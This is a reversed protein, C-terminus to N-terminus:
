LVLPLVIGALVVLLVVFYLIKWVVSKGKVYRWANVAVICIAVAAAVAKLASIIVLSIEFFGLILAVLYLIATVTLTWFSVKNLTISTGSSSKKKKAM